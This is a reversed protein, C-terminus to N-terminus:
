CNQQRFFRPWVKDTHREFEPGGSADVREVSCMANNGVRNELWNCLGLIANHYENLTKPSLSQRMRARWSEFSHGTVDQVTPWDIERMLRRLKRGLEIVYKEDRGLGRKIELYEEVFKELPRKVAERHGKSPSLGEREREVERVIKRLKEEAVQKDGVGLAVTTVKIEGNLRYRGSFTRAKRLKGRVQRRPKFVFAIM